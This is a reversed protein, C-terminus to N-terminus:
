ATLRSNSFARVRDHDHAIDLLQAVNALYQAYTLQGTDFQFGLLCCAFYANDAGVLSMVRAADLEADVAAHVLSPFRAVVPYERVLVQRDARQFKWLRAESLFQCWIAAPSHAQAMPWLVLGTLSFLAGVPATALRSSDGSHPASVDPSWTRGGWRSGNMRARVVLLM